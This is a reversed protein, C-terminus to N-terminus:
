GAKVVTLKPKKRYLKPEEPNSNYWDLFTEAMYFADDLPNSVGGDPNEDTFCTAEFLIASNDNRVVSFCWNGDSGQEIVALANGQLLKWHGTQLDEQFWKPGDETSQFFHEENYKIESM